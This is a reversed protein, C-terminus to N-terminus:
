QAVLLFGEHVPECGDMDRPFLIHDRVAPGPAM